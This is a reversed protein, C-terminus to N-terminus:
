CMILPIIFNSFLSAIALIIDPLNQIIWKVIQKVVIKLKSFVFSFMSQMEKIGSNAYELFSKYKKSKESYNPDNPSPRRSLVDDRVRDVRGYINSKLNNTRQIFGNEFQEASGRVAEEKSYAEIENVGMAVDVHINHLQRDIFSTQYSM